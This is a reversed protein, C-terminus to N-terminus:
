VSERERGVDVENENIKLPRLSENRICHTTTYSAASVIDAHVTRNSHQHQNQNRGMEIIVDFM